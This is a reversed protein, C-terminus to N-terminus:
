SRPRLKTGLRRVMEVSRPAVGASASKVLEEKAIHHGPPHFNPTTSSRSGAPSRFATSARRASAISATSLLLVGFRDGGGRDQLGFLQKPDPLARDSRRRPLDRDLRGSQPQAVAPAVASTVAARTRLPPAKNGRPLETQLRARRGFAEGKDQAQSGGAAPRRRLPRPARCTTCPGRRAPRPRHEDVPAAFRGAAALYRGEGFLARRAALPALGVGRGARDIDDVPAAFRSAAAFLWSEGFLAAARPLHHLAWAAGPATSTTLLRQSVAPQRLCGVKASSPAARPLHHLAWAAGPATLTTLVRAASAGPQVRLRGVKASSPAARPLHHLAWAARGARDVDDASRQSASPQRKIGAKASSPAARPLHHLAWAAGPATLTTLLRQSAGPQQKSGAKASSPAARPLHHLACAAGPATLTRLLRQLLARPQRLCGSRGGFFPAARPM